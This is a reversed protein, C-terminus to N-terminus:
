FITQEHAKLKKSTELIENQANHYARFFEQATCPESYNRTSTIVAEIDDPHFDMLMIHWERPAYEKVIIKRTGIFAYWSSLTKNKLFLPKMEQHNKLKTQYKNQHM